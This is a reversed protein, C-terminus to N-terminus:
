CTAAAGRGGDADHITRPAALPTPAASDSARDQPCRSRVPAAVSCGSRRRAAPRATGPSRCLRPSRDLLDARRRHFYRRGTLTCRDLHLHEAGLITVDDDSGIAVQVDSSSCPPHACTSVTVVARRWGLPTSSPARRPHSACRGSANRGPSPASSGHHGRPRTAPTRRPWRPRDTSPRRTAPASRRRHCRERESLLEVGVTFPQVALGVPDALGSAAGILAPGKCQFRPSRPTAPPAPATSPASSRRRLVLFGFRQQRIPVQQVGPLVVLPLLARAYKINAVCRQGSTIETAASRTQRRLRDDHRGDRRRGTRQGGM